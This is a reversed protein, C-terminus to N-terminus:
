SEKLDKIVQVQQKHRRASGTMKSLYKGAVMGIGFIGSTRMEPHSDKFYYSIGGIISSWFCIKWLQQAYYRKGLAPLRHQEGDGRDCYLVERRFANVFVRSLPGLDVRQNSGGEAPLIADLGQILEEEGRGREGYGRWEEDVKLYRGIFPPVNSINYRGLSWSTDREVVQSAAHDSAYLNMVNGLVILAYMHLIM